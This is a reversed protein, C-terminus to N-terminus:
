RWRVSSRSGVDGNSPCQKPDLLQQLRHQLICSRGGVGENEPFVTAKGMEVTPRRELEGGEDGIVERGGWAGGGRGGCARTASAVQPRSPPPGRCRGRAGTASPIRAPRPCSPPAGRGHQVALECIWAAGRCLERSGSCASSSSGRDPALPPPDVRGPVTVNVKPTHVAASSTTHVAASSNPLHPRRRRLHLRAGEELKERTVVGGVGVASALQPPRTSAPGAPRRRGQWGCGGGHEGAAEEEMGTPRRRGRRGGGGGHADAAEEVGPLPTTRLGIPPPEGRRQGRPPIWPAAPPLPRLEIRLPFRSSSPM